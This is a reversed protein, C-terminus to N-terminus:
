ICSTENDGGVGGGGEVSNVVNLLEYVRAVNLYSHLICHTMLLHVKLKVSVAHCLMGLVTGLVAHLLLCSISLSFIGTGM